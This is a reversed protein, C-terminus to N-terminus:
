ARGSDRRLDTGESGEAISDTSISNTTKKEKKNAKYRQVRYGQGACDWAFRAGNRLDM